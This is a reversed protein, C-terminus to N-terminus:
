SGKLLSGHLVVWLVNLGLSSYHQPGYADAGQWSFYIAILAVVIAAMSMQRAADGGSDRNVVYVAGLGFLFLGLWKLLFSLGDMNAQDGGMYLTTAHVPAFLFWVGYLIMVVGYLM